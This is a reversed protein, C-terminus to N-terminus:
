AGKKLQDTGINNTNYIDLTNILNNVRQRGQIDLTSESETESESEPGTEDATESVISFRKRFRKVRETSSDSKYQRKDWGHVAYHYGDPGGNARDLLGANSLRELVTLCVTEPVRLSFAIQSVNRPLGGNRCCLCLLNVWHKFTDGDLCQVKPDDLAEHYFRFWTLRPANKM